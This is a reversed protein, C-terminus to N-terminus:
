EGKLFMEVDNSKFVKGNEACEFTISALLLMIGLAFGSITGGIYNSFNQM